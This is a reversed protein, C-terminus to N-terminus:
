LFGQLTKYCKYVSMVCIVLIPLESQKLFEYSFNSRDIKQEPLRMDEWPRGQREKSIWDDIEQDSANWLWVDQSLSGNLVDDM